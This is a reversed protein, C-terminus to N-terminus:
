DFFVVETLRVYTLILRIFILSVLIKGFFQLNKAETPSPGLGGNTESLQPTILNRVALKLFRSADWYGCCIRYVHFQHM